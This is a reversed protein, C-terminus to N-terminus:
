SDGVDGAATAPSEGPSTQALASARILFVFVAPVPVYRM